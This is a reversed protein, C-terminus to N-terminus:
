RKSANGTAEQLLPMKKNVAMSMKQRNGIELISADFPLKTINNRANPSRVLLQKPVVTNGRQLLLSQEPSLCWKDNFRSNCYASVFDWFSAYWLTSDGDKEDPNHSMHWGKLIRKLFGKSVLRDLHTRSLDETRVLAIGNYNQIKKLKELSQALKVAPNAM